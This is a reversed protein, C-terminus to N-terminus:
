FFYYNQEPLPAASTIPWAAAGWAGWRADHGAPPFPEHCVPPQAVVTPLLQGRCLLAKEWKGGLVDASCLMVFLCSGNWMKHPGAGQGPGHGMGARSATPRKALVFYTWVWLFCDEYILIYFFYWSLIFLFLVLSPALTFSVHFSNLFAKEGTM